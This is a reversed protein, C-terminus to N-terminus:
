APQLPTYYRLFSRWHSASFIKQFILLSVHSPLPPFHAVNHLFSVSLDYDLLIIPNPQFFFLITYLFNGPPAKVQKLPDIFMQYRRHERALLSLHLLKLVLLMLLIPM